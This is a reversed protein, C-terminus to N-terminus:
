PHGTGLDVANSNPNRVFINGHPNVANKVHNGQNMGCPDHTPWNNGTYGDFYYYLSATTGFIPGYRSPTLSSPAPKEKCTDTVRKVIHCNVSGNRWDVLSGTGADCVVWNNINSKILIQKGLQKWQSFDIANYDTENLPPNTSIPVDVEPNVPWNPRPTIANSKARFHSYNTFTYSWVLTWGGGDTDMDCHAKFANTQSGGDPDIWYVGMSEPIKASRVKELYLSGQRRLLKKTHQTQREELLSCAGHSQIYNASRCDAQRACTQSCSMLSDVKGDWISNEDFLFSNEEVKFFIGHEEAQITVTLSLIIIITGQLM